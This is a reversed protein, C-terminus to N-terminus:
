LIMTVFEELEKTIARLQMQMEEIHKVYKEIM